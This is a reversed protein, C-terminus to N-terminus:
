EGSVIIGDRIRNMPRFVQTFDVSDSIFRVSGDGLLFQAGGVHHSGFGWAYQLKTGDKNYDVNIQYQADITVGHCCTHVGAGWYPGYATATHRLQTSEGVLISNSMGDTLDRFRAAGDNGFSGQATSSLNEGYSSSYDTFDGSAFLYSSRAVRNREYIYVQNANDSVVQGAGPDSPCLYVGMPRSYIPRNTDSTAVGGGKPMGPCNLQQVSISSPVNFNYQNFMSSQDVFPLLMVWGTHNLLFPNSCYRGSAVLAPPLTAHTDHYNHLALGIQKLNNKCQLRRAAERAQQVAPLL